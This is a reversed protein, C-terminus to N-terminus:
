KLKDKLKGQHALRGERLYRRALKKMAKNHRGGILKKFDAGVQASSVDLTGSVQKVPFSKLNTWGPHVFPHVKSTESRQQTRGEQDTYEYTVTMPGEYHFGEQPLELHVAGTKPDVSVPIQQGKADRVEIVKRPADLHITGDRTIQASFTTVKGNPGFDAAMVQREAEEVREERKKLEAALLDSVARLALSNTRKRDM